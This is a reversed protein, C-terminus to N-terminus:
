AHDSARETEMLKVNVASAKALAAGGNAQARAFAAEYKQASTKLAEMGNKLPAFDLYPPVALRPPPVSKKTPDAVATFMGEDLEKDREIADDRKKKALKELEDVYRGYTDAEGNFNLPIVDADALRMVATGPTQALARGYVFNTDDFHTYWYFDDYISHYVGGDGEGGYGLNLSAVGLHDVFVTYDSGSGLADIRLNTGNACTRANRTPRRGRFMAAAQLRQWVSIDKEPDNIDRAVDNIFM